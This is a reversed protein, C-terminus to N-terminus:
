IVYSAAYTYINLILTRGLLLLVRPPALRSSCGHFRAAAAFAFAFATRSYYDVAVPPPTYTCKFIAIEVVTTTTTTTSFADRLGLPLCLRARDRSGSGGGDIRVCLKAADPGCASKGRYGEEDGFRKGRKPCERRLVCDFCGRGVQGEDELVGAGRARGSPM